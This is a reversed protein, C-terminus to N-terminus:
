DVWKTKIKSLPNNLGSLKNIEIYKLKESLEQMKVIDEYSKNFILDYGEYITVTKVLEALVDYLKKYDTYDIKYPELWRKLAKELIEQETETMFEKSAQLKAIDEFTIINSADVNVLTRDEVKLRIFKDTVQMTKKLKKGTNEEARLEDGDLIILYQRDDEVFKFYKRFAKYISGYNTMYTRTINDAIVNKTLTYIKFREESPINRFIYNIQKTEGTFEKFRFLEINGEPTTQTLYGGPNTQAINEKLIEFYKKFAKNMREKAKKNGYTYLFALTNVYFQKSLKENQSIIALLKKNKNVLELTEMHIEGKM